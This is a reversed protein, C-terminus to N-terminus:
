VTPEDDHQSMKGVLGKAPAPKGIPGAYDANRKKIAKWSNDTPVEKNGWWGLHKGLKYGSAGLAAGGVASAVGILVKQTTTLGGAIADLDADSVELGSENCAKKADDRTEATVVKELLKENKFLDEVKSM